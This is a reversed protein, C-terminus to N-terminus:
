EYYSWPPEQFLDLLQDFNQPYVNCGTIKMPECNNFYVELSWTEGDFVFVDGTDDYNREWEDISCNFLFEIFENWQQCTIQKETGINVHNDTHGTAVVKIEFANKEVLISVCGGLYVDKNFIVKTVTEANKNNKM